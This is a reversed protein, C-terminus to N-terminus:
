DNGDGILFLYHIETVEENDIFTKDCSVIKMGTEALADNLYTWPDEERECYRFGSITGRGRALVSTSYIINFAQSTM